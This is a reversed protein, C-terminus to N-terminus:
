GGFRAFPLGAIGVDVAFVCGAQPERALEDSSLGYRMSTVFLTRLGPGGFAISTPKSVPLSVAAVEQGSSNFRVVQGASIEAVWLGGEADTACGDPRGRRGTFDAFLRRNEISGTKLDYDYAWIRGPRSDCFYMTQDDPSWAIGNGLTIGEDMRTIQLDLGVRYLGGVPQKVDRDMTGVWFRGRRDCKGDNFVEAAFDITPSPIDELMSNGPEIFALGRRYAMLMGGRTRLTFSGPTRPLVWEEHNASQVDHRLLKRGMCDISFM